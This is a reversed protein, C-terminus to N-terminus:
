RAVTIAKALGSVEASEGSGVRPTAVMWTLKRSHIGFQDCSWMSIKSSASISQPRMTLSFRWRGSRTCRMTLSSSLRALWRPMSPRMRSIFASSLAVLTMLGPLSGARCCPLAIIIPAICICNAVPVTSVPTAAPKPWCAFTVWCTACAAFAACLVASSAAPALCATATSSLRTSAASFVPLSILAPSRASPSPM